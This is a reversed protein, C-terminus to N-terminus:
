FIVKLSPESQFRDRFFYDISLQALNRDQSVTGGM